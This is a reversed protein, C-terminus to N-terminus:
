GRPLAHVAAWIQRMVVWVREGVSRRIILKSNRRIQRAMERYQASERGQYHMMMM